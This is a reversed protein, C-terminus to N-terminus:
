NLLFDGSSVSLCGFSQMTPDTARLNMALLKRKEDKLPFLHSMRTPAVVNAPPHVAVKIPTVAWCRDLSTTDLLEHLVVNFYSPAMIWFTRTAAVRIFIWRM